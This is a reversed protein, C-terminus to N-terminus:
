RSQRTHATPLGRRGRLPAVRQPCGAAEGRWTRAISSDHAKTLSIVHQSYFGHAHCPSPHSTGQAREDLCRRPRMRGAMQDSKSPSTPFPRGQEGGQRGSSLLRSRTPPCSGAGLGKGRGFRRPPGARSQLTQTEAGGGLLCLARHGDRVGSIPLRANLHPSCTKNLSPVTPLPRATGWRRRPRTRTQGSTARSARARDEGGPTPRDKGTTGRWPLAGQRSSVCARTELGGQYSSQPPSADAPARNQGQAWGGLCPQCRTGSRDQQFVSASASTM